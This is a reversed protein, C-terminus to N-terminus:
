YNIDTAPYDDKANKFV